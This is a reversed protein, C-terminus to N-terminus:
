PRGCIWRALSDIEDDSGVVPPMVGRWPSGLQDAERLRELLTRTEPFGRDASRARSRGADHCTSCQVRFMAEGVADRSAGSSADLRASRRQLQAREVTTGNAYLIGPLAWPRISTARAQEFCFLAIVCLAAAGAPAFRHHLAARAAWSAIAAAFVSAALAVFVLRRVRGGHPGILAPVGTWPDYFFGASFAFCVAALCVGTVVMAAASAAATRRAAGPQLWPAAWAWVGAAGLAIAAASRIVLMPVVWPSLLASRVERTEIWASPSWYWAAITSGVLIVAVAATLSLGGAVRAILASSAMSRAAWSVLWLIPIAASAILLPGFAERAFLVADRSSTAVALSAFAISPLGLVFALFLVLRDARRWERERAM